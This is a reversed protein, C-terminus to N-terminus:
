HGYIVGRQGGNIFIDGDVNQYVFSDATFSKEKKTVLKKYEKCNGILIRRGKRGKGEKIIPIKVNSIKSLWNQLESAAYKESETPTFPIVISYRSQGERFLVHDKAKSEQLLFTLCFVFALLRIFSVM